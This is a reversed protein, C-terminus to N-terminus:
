LLTWVFVAAIALITCALLLNWAHYSRRTM